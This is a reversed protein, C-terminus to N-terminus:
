HCLLDVTQGLMNICGMQVIKWKSFDVPVYVSKKCLKIIPINVNKRWKSPVGFVEYLKEVSNDAQPYKWRKQLSTKNKAM